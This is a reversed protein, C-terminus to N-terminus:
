REGGWFFIVNHFTMYGGGIAWDIGMTAGGLRVTVFPRIIHQSKVMKGNVRRM